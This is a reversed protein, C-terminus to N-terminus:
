NVLGIKSLVWELREYITGDKIREKYPTLEPLDLLKLRYNNSLKINLDYEICSKFHKSQIMVIYDAFVCTNNVIDDLCKETGVGLLVIIINSPYKNKL